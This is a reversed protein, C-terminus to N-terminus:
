QPRQPIRGIRHRRYALLMPLFALLAVSAVLWPAAHGLCTPGTCGVDVKWLVEWREVLWVAGLVGGVSSLLVVLRRPSIWRRLLAFLPLMVCLV